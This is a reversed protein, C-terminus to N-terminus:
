RMNGLYFPETITVQHEPTEDGEGLYVASGMTYSGPQILVFEMSLGHGIDISETVQLPVAEGTQDAKIALDTSHQHYYYFQGAAATGAVILCLILYRKFKDNIKRLEKESPIEIISRM